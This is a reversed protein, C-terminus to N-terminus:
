YYIIPQHASSHNHDQRYMDYQMVQTPMHPDIYTPYGYQEPYYYQQYQPYGMNVQEAHRPDTQSQLYEDVGPVVEQSANAEYSTNSDASEAFYASSTDGNSQSSTDSGSVAARLGSPGPATKHKTESGPARIEIRSTQRAPTFIPVGTMPDVFGNVPPTHTHSHTALFDPSASAVSSHHMHGPMFSMSGSSHHSVHGHMMPRPTFMTPPPNHQLYVARGTAVEYPYGHHSMAIGPPLAGYAYPSGYPPSSHPVPSFSTQIPPLVPPPPRYEGSGQPTPAHIGPPGSKRMVTEEIQTSVTTDGSGSVLIQELQQQAHPEPLHSVQPLPSPVHSSPQTLVAPSTLRPASPHDAAIIPIHVPAGNPRVTFVEEISLDATPDTTSTPAPAPLVVSPAPEVPKKTAAPIRVVFIRDGDESPDITSAARVSPPSETSAAALRAVKSSPARVVQETRGPLKVRFGPGRGPRPKLAFDDYLPRDLYKTWSKEPAMSYWVRGVRQESISNSRSGPSMHSLSGGGRAFGGRGRAGIFGGRGRLSVGRQPPSTARSAQEAKQEGQTRRHVDRRMMEEFGDHTWAREIPPVEVKSNDGDDAVNADTTDQQVRGAFSGGRGGGRGRMSFGGRGRGRSQWRGRWWGSLSRLDKDLLRDDHGWFEGVTPVYSPDSELRQQYAQRPTPGKSRSPQRERSSPRSSSAVPEPVTMAKPEDDVRAAQSTVTKAAAAAKKAQKKQKQTRPATPPARQAIVHGNLESFDIIPLDAGGGSTEDAVMQAWDTTGSFPGSEGDLLPSKIPLGDSSTTADKVHLPPPSQTTSPTVVEFRNTPHGEDDSGSDTESDSLLSSNDDTESDTRAEREIEDEDSEFGKKARGRRRITRTRKQQSNPKETVKSSRRATTTAIASPM